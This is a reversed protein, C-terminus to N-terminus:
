MKLLRDLERLKEQGQKDWPQIRQRVSHLTRRADAGNGNSFQIQALFVGAAPEAGGSSWAIELQREAAVLNGASAFLTAALFRNRWLQTLHEPQPAGDVIAVILNALDAKTLGGCEHTQVHRALNQLMLLESLELKKGIIGRVSNIELSTAEGDIVCSLLVHQIAAVHAAAPNRLRSMEDLVSRTEDIRGQQMLLRAFDWRARLSQPHQRVGQEVLLPWSAWVTSRTWTAGTLALLTLVLGIATARRIRIINDSLHRLNNFGWYGAGVIGLFFGASPFYNRHEFYIELPLFSSELSHGALFTALGVFVTPARNRVRWAAIILLLLIAISAFTSPPDLLGKSISFDDTYIGLRQGNPLLLAMTYDVLARPQTLLRESMNFLRGDYGSLVREPQFTLLLAALVVPLAISLIFFVTVIRPRRTAPLPRFYGLEVIGCLLPLLAGNEKSLSALIVSAPVLAFLHLWAMRHRGQQLLDRGRVFAILGLLTFLASLQAMRQVVYLVTSVQIPHLLWIGAVLLAGTHRHASLVHDRAMLQKALAYLAVGCAVHLAVNTIKFSQPHLHDSAWANAVFSLMAIPRGLVGSKTGLVIQRWEIEGRFWSELPHVFNPFDDFLFPGQLGPFYAFVTLALLALLGAIHSARAHKNWKRQM